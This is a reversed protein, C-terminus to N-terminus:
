EANLAEEIASKMEKSEPKVGSRYRHLLKGDKGILFKEFNWKIDGTFDPNEAKTLYSFLPHQDDGKVSVKSFMPFNVDYKATCFELIEEDTGPEQGMFNNAPFGLIVLGQDKYQEYIAQLGEYQPTYGCKSATNVILVVKGKYTELSKEDGEITKLTFSYFSDTISFMSLIGLVILSVIKM